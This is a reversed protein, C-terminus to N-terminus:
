FDNRNNKVNTTTNGSIIFTEFGSKNFNVMLKPNAALEKSFAKAMKDYDIGKEIMTAKPILLDPILANPIGKLLKNTKADIVREGKSLMAPISDSTETGAGQVYETGKAFKPIKTSAILAINAATSAAAIALAAFYGPNPTGLPTVPSVTTLIRTIALAGNITAQIIAAQKDAQAQKTKIAAIKQQYREEVRARQSDTLEKNALEKTRLENLRQIQLNFEANRNTNVIQFIADATQQAIQISADKIAMEKDEAAKIEVKEANIRRENAEKEAVLRQEKRSAEHEAELERRRKLSNKYEELDKENTSRSLQLRLESEKRLKEEISNQIEALLERRQILSKRYLEDTADIREKESKVIKKDEEEKTQTYKILEVTLQKVTGMQERIAQTQQEIRKKNVDEGVKIGAVTQSAGNKKLEELISLQKKLEKNADVIQKSYEETLRKKAQEETINKILVQYELEKKLDDIQSERLEAVKEQEKRFSELTQTSGSIIASLKDWNKYLEIIGIIALGIGTAALALRFAALAGTSEGVVLTYIKQAAINLGLSLATQKQLSNQIQQLGQTIAMVANLKVLTKQLDENENGALAAAGQLMQFGVAGVQIGQLAADLKFSDSSLVNIAQQADGISDKLEGASAAMDYIQSTTAEGTIILKTLEDRSQKIQSRFSIASKTDEDLVVVGNNKRINSIEENVLKLNSVVKPLRRDEKLSFEFPKAGSLLTVNGLVLKTKDVMAQIAKTGFAGTATKGLEKYGDVMKDISEKGLKAKTAYADMMKKQEASVSSTETKLQKEADRLENMAAIAPDLGKSDAVLEIIYKM